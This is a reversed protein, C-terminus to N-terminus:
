LWYCPVQHGPSAFFWPMLLLTAAQWCQGITWLTELWGEHMWCSPHSSVKHVTWWLKCVVLRVEDWEGGGPASMQQNQVPFMPQQQQQQNLQQQQLGPATMAGPQHPQPVPKSNPKSPGIIHNILSDADMKRTGVTSFERLKKQQEQFQRAKIAQEMKKRQEEMMKAQHAVMKSPLTSSFSYIYM